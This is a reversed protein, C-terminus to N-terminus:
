RSNTFLNSRDLLKSNEHKKRYQTPNMGETRKFLRCYYQQSCFGLHDAIKNIQWNTVLLLHKSKELKYSNIFETPKLGTLKKIKRSLCSRSMFILSSLKKMTLTHDDIHEDITATVKYLFRDAHNLAKRKSMFSMSEKIKLLYTILIPVLSFPITEFRKQAYHQKTYTVIPRIQKLADYLSEKSATEANILILDIESGEFTLDIKNNAIQNKILYSNMFTPIQGVHLIQMPVRENDWQLLTLHTTMEDPFFSKLTM